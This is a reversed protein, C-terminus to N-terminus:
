LGICYPSSKENKQLVENENLVKADMFLSVNLLLVPM